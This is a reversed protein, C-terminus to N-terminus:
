PPLPYSPFPRPREAEDIREGFDDTSWRGTTAKKTTEAVAGQQPLFDTWGLLVLVPRICGQETVSENPSTFRSFTEFVDHLGDRFTDFADTRSMSAHWEPTARIGDTLFYQTFLQGTM